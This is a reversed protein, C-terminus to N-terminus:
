KKTSKTRVYSFGSRTYARVEVRTKRIQVLKANPSQEGRALAKVLLDRYHHLLQTAREVNDRQNNYAKILQEIRKM